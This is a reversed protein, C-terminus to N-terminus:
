ALTFPVEEGALDFVSTGSGEVSVRDVVLDAEGVNRVTIVQPASPCEKPLGGFDLSTPSVEIDPDELPVEEPATDEPDGGEPKEDPRHLDYDSCAGLLALTTLTSIM